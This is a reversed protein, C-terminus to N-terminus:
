PTGREEAHEEEPWYNNCLVTLCDMAGEDTKADFFWQWKTRAGKASKGVERIFGYPDSKEGLVSQLGDWDNYFYEQLLPIVQKRFVRNFSREDNVDVFYAHGIQHDRDKRSAIRRNLEQLGERMKPTLGQCVEPGLDVRLEEFDFRRRLAVDVLAISKDATNMTALLHLNPPVGFKDGSYPLTVILENTAGIRKDKEILTILEGMIKSINGRNIEDIVLVYRNWESQPKLQYGSKEGQALFDRVIDAKQKDKTEPQPSKKRTASQKELCDFLANFALRKFTGPRCEYRPRGGAKEALVPRIGEVFDEYSYSQHFTIFEIKGSERLKDFELKYSHHDNPCDPDVIKAARSITTYTKGTGPPGYLILNLPDRESVHQLLAIMRRLDAKILVDDPLSDQVYKIAYVNGKEYGRGLPGTDELEINQELDEIITGLTARARAVRKKILEKKKAKMKGGPLPDQTGQNLSCLVASGKATFLYVLYWGDTAKSSYAPDYVRVWPVRNHLGDGNSSNVKFSTGALDDTVLTQIREVLLGRDEMRKSDRTRFHHQLQLVGAFAERITM